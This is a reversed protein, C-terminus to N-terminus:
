GSKQRAAIHAAVNQADRWVGWIFSSARCSLWPLGLFYLGPVPSVGCTHEPRGKSDFKGV